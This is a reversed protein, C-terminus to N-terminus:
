GSVERVAQIIDDTSPVIYQELPPSFAMPAEKSAVRKIPADLCELAEEAIIAAVEAGIGCRKWSEHVIVVRGTKKVSSLIMDKDLPVLTRPDVVEASIKMGELREAAELAKPVMYSVAILTVDEGQKKIDGKGFPITYEQEPVPGETATLRKQESFLVPNNDRIAAKILGKADYPTSPAAIKIGPIHMFWDALYASHHGAIGFGVGGVSRIVIPLKSNEEGFMYRIRAAQNVIQECAIPLLDDFMIEVVPKLGTRAAGVACGVFGLESIPTDRVRDLGFEELLPASDFWMGQRMDEGMLIVNEDNRMEEQLGELIARGYTIRRMEEKGKSNM